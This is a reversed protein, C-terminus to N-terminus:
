VGIEWPRDDWYAKKEDFHAPMEGLDDLLTDSGDLVEARPEGRLMQSGLLDCPGDDAREEGVM